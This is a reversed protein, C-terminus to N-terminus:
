KFKKLYVKTTLTLSHKKICVINQLTDLGINNVTFESNAQTIISM